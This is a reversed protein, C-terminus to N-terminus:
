KNNSVSTSGVDTRRGTQADFTLIDANDVEMWVDSDLPFEVTTPIDAKLLGGGYSVTVLTRNGLSEVMYVKAPLALSSTGTPSTVSIRARHPRFGLLVDHGDRGAHDLPVVNMPPEGVFGAVFTSVPSDYVEEPTDYQEIVGGNMVLVRNALALADLQDHTVIIMTSGTALHIREIEARMDNRLDADVHSMPEDLLFVAPERVLARALGIRQRMGGSLRGPRGELVDAIRLSEAISLVKRQITQDTEGRLRLPYAINDFVSWHEYLGYNEFAMAVNRQAPAIGGVSMDDFFIHGSTITELGAIMRLTTTKGCGSPGLIVVLEGDDVQFSIGRVAETQGYRKTM